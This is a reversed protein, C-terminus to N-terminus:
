SPVTEGINDGNYMRFASDLQLMFNRLNKM